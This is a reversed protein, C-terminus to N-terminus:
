APYGATSMVEVVQNRHRDNHGAILLLWQYVDMPGLRPHDMTHRRLADQTEAAFMITKQRCEKFKQVADAKEWPTGAPMMPDPGKIKTDRQPVIKLILADKGVTQELHGAEPTEKLAKGILGKLVMSEMLVLHETIEAPSWNEADPKFNWQDVSMGSITELYREMSQNLEFLVTQREEATLSTENPEPSM